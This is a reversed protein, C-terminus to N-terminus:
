DVYGFSRLDQERRRLEEDEPEREEGAPLAVGPQPTDAPAAGPSAASAAAAPQPAGSSVGAPAAGQRGRRRSPFRSPHSESFHDLDRRLSAAASQAAVPRHEGRDRRVDYVAAEGTAAFAIMKADERTLSLVPGDGGNPRAKETESFVGAPDRRLGAALGTLSPGPFPHGAIGTLDMLTPAISVSGPVLDAVRRPAYGPAAVILPVHLVERYLTAIHFCRGHELFEEGHDSLLVVITRQSLGRQDLEALLKGVYRDARRVAADYEDVYAAMKRSPRGKRCAQKMSFRPLRSLGVAKRDISDGRYPTHADYGHFFLFFKRHQNRDLWFRADEFNDRFSRGNNRYVEFGSGFGFSAAMNIGGTFAATAWGKGAFVSALTPVSSELTRTDRISVFGHERPHLGTFISMHAPRTWSSQAIANEFLVGRRALADINPTIPRSYGYAAVHDARLTDVSILVVNCDACPPPAAPRSCGTNCAAIAALARVLLALVSRDPSRRTVPPMAYMVLLSAAVAL